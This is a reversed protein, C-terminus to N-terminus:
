KRFLLLMLVFFLKWCRLVICKIFSKETGVSRGGEVVPVFRHAVEVFNEAWAKGERRTKTTKWNLLHRSIFESPAKKERFFQKRTLSSVFFLLLLKTSFNQSNHWMSLFNFWLCKFCKHECHLSRRSLKEDFILCFAFVSLLVSQQEM